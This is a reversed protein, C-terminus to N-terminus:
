SQGVGGGSSDEDDLDVVDDDLDVDGDDLDVDDDDLDVNYDDIRITIQTWKIMTTDKFFVHLLSLDGQVDMNYRLQLNQIAIQVFSYLVDMNYRLQLNQIVIQVFSCIFVARGDDAFQGEAKVLGVVM